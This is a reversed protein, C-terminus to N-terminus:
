FLLLSTGQPQILELVLLTQLSSQLMMSVMCRHEVGHAVALQRPCVSRPGGSRWCIEALHLLQRLGVLSESKEGIIGHIVLSLM